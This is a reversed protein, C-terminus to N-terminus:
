AQKSRREVFPFSAGQKVRILNEKLRSLVEMKRDITEITFRAIGVLSMADEVDSCVALPQDVHDLFGNVVDLLGFCYDRGILDKKYSREIERRLRYIAVVSAEAEGRLQRNSIPKITYM